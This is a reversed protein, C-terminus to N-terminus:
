ATKPRVLQSVRRTSTAVRSLAAKDCAWSWAIGLPHSLAADINPHADVIMTSQIAMPIARRSNESYRAKFQGVRSSTIAAKIIVIM